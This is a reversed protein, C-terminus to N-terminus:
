RNQRADLFLSARTKTQVDSGRRADALAVLHELVRVFQAALAHVDDDTEDLRVASGVRTRADAVQLLYRQPLELIAAHEEPFHVDLGDLCPPGRDSDHVLQRM